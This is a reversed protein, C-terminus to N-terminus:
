PSKKLTGSFTPGLRVRAVGAVGQLIVQTPLTRAVAGDEKMIVVSFLLFLHM